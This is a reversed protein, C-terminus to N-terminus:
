FQARTTMTSLATHIPISSSWLKGSEPMGTAPYLIHARIVTMNKLEDHEIDPLVYKAETKGKLDEDTYKGIFVLHIEEVVLM